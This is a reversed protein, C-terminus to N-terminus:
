VTVSRALGKHPWPLETRLKQCISSATVNACYGGLGVTQAEANTLVRCSTSFLGRHRRSHSALHELGGRLPHVAPPLTRLATAQAPAKPRRGGFRLLRKLNQGTAVLLAEANVKDLRRLRFRRMGHWDKAEAFLPEVWGRRKRLAKEYPFTGRYGKVRDVYEEEFHRLVQRGTKSTTCDPRLECAACTDAKARRPDGGRGEGERRFECLGNLRAGSSREINRIPLLFSM